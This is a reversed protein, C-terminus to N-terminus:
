KRVPATRPMKSLAVSSKFRFHADFIGKIQDPVDEAHYLSLKLRGDDSESMDHYERFLAEFVECFEAETMRYNSEAQSNNVMRIFEQRRTNYGKFRLLLPLFVKQCLLQVAPNLKLQTAIADDRDSGIYDFIFRSYDNLVKWERNSLLVAVLNQMGPVIVRPFTVGSIGPREPVLMVLRAYLLRTIADKRRDDRVYWHTDLCQACTNDFLSVVHRSTEEFKRRVRAVDEVGIETRGAFSDRLSEFIIHFLARCINLNKKSKDGRIESEEINAAAAM